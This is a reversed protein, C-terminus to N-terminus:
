KRGKWGRIHRGNKTIIRKRKAKTRQGWKWQEVDFGNNLIQEALVWRNQEVSRKLSELMRSAPTAWTDGVNLVGFSEHGEHRTVSSWGPGYEYHYKFDYTSGPNFRRIVEEMACRLQEDYEEQTM